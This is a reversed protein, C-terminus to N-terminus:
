ANTTHCSVRTLTRRAKDQTDAVDIPLRLRVEGQGPHGAAQWAAQYAAIVPALESMPIGILAVLLALGRTGVAAFTDHMTAVQQLPPDEYPKPIM